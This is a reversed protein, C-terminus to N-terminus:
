GIDYSDGRSRNCLEREATKLVLGSAVESTKGRMRLELAEHKGSSMLRM